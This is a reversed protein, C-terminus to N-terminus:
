NSYSSVWQIFSSDLYNHIFTHEFVFLNLLIMMCPFNWQFSFIYYQLVIHKGWDIDIQYLAKVIQFYHEFMTAERSVINRLDHKRDKDKRLFNTLVKLLVLYGLTILWLHELLYHYLYWLLCLVFSECPQIVCTRWLLIHFVKHNKVSCRGWTNSRFLM